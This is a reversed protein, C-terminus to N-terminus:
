TSQLQEETTVHHNETSYYVCNARNVAGSFIFNAENSWCIKWTTGDGWRKETLLAECFQLCCDPDYELLGHILRPWYMKLSFTQMLHGLFRCSIYLENSASKREWVIIGSCSFKAKMCLLVSQNVVRWHMVFPGLNILNIMTIQLNKILGNRDFNKLMKDELITQNVAKM